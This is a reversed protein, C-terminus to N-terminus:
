LADIGEARARWEAKLEDLLDEYRAAAAERV